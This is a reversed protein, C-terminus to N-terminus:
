DQKFFKELYMEPKETVISKMDRPFCKRYNRWKFRDDMLVIAGRDTESRICRGAAQLARNMAPYIYGYDWGRSFKFDYYRILADTELTPRELPLGVVVACDLMRGPFDMGESFSGAQVAFLVGGGDESVHALRRYLELRQRKSMDQSELLLEKDQFGVLRSITGLISYSPFFVAVNGPVQAVIRDLASAIKRWMHESRHTFKTTIGHTLLVLRNEQPFPNSYQELVPDHVGLVTQYMELPLLTGSMLVSAHAASFVDESYLAPDLCKTSLQYRRGTNSMYTNFIRAYASEDRKETWDSLFNAISVCYSRYRNPLELVTEGFGDLGEVFSATSMSISDELREILEEKGVFMEKKGRMSKGLAKLIHLVSKLDEELNEERLARAEKLANNVTFESLSSSMLSRIRGPLNHAEDVILIADEMSKGIKSLFAQRVHPHFIHYYDGIIVNASRAVISSLEYACLQHERCIELVEEAHLPSNRKIQNVARKANASMGNTGPARISNCFRCTENRVHSRCFHTFDKHPLERAGEYLCTWQKGIIDVTVVRKGHRERAKKLTEVALHHQSHKPTLFFVTKGNELAYALAPPLSAATKGIGTPAHALLTAEDELASAVDELLRKQEDRIRSFPFLTKKLIDM